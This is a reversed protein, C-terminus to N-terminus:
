AEVKAKLSAEEGEGVTLCGFDVVDLNSEGKIAILTRHASVMDKRSDIMKTISAGISDLVRQSRAPTINSTAETEMLSITLRATDLIALDVSGFVTQLDAAVTRGGAESIHM